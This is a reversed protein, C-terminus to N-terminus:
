KNKGVFVLGVPMLVSVGFLMEYHYPMNGLLQWYLIGQIFLLLESLIFGSLFLSLGYKSRRSELNILGALHYLAFIFLSVFGILTLHLYGIVFNRVKYALDAFLPIASVAQLLLKIIFSFLSLLILGFVYGKIEKKLEERIQWILRMFCILGYLQLLASIGGVVYVIPTPQTWLASLAYAPICAIALSYRFGKGLKNSYHINKVELFWFFLGFVAFTFWGNYQFHLYFYICLYYFNNGGNGNAMIPGLSWPGLSSLALFLLSWKVFAISLTHKEMILLNKRSYKSFSYIFWYSLLIHMTSFTISVAAYGQIPFTILMGLVSIQTLWFQIKFTRRNRDEERLFAHLLLIFFASYLWGLLAVHSHAHLFFKFNLAPIPSVFQLRLLVGLLAVILLYIFPVKIWSKNM